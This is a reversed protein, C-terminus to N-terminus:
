SVVPTSVLDGKVDWIQLRKCEVGQLKEFDCGWDRLIRTANPAVHIAAGIENLFGSQELVQPKTPISERTPTTYSVQVEHGSRNLAIAAGLGALGAGVIIVKLPM